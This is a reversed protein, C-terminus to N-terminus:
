APDDLPLVARVRFGEGPETITALSGGYMQVRERMGVLGHGGSAPVGGPGDAGAGDDHVEIELCREEYRLCVEVATARAHRRVNTLAEQVIRFVALGVGAPLPRETGEVRLRTPVDMGAVLEHLASLDPQPQLGAEEGSDRILAVVRRMESLAETGTGRIAALARRVYEPDDIAKEAAGAQVVMVSVSHAVIDHLERAIRAREQEAAQRAQERGDHEARVAREAELRARREYSAVFVGLSFAVTSVLWHFVIESPDGLEPVRLDFFLLTGAGVGAGVWRQRLSGYRAVSYLAVLIPVFAGWFLVLVPAVLSVLPWTVLVVIAAGLPHTRRQTLAAGLVLVIGTALTPSGSGMVSPLPVWIELCGVTAVVLALAADGWGPRTLRDVQGAYSSCPRATDEELRSGQGGPLVVSPDAPRHGVVRDSGLTPPM